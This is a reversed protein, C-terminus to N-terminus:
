QQVLAGKGANSERVSSSARTRSRSVSL